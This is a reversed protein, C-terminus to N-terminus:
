SITTDRLEGDIRGSYVGATQLKRQLARRFELSWARSNQTMQRYTFENRMELARLILDAAQEPDKRQVGRGSDLMAALNHIGTSNGEAAARRYLSVATIDNHEVGKGQQHMFGLNVMGASNGLDAARRYWFAAKVPDAAGGEATNYLSALDLMSPVHGAEAARTLLRIAEVTDKSVLKGQGLIVGLWHQAEHNDGEAAARLLRLGEQEDKTAGRGEILAMALAATANLSGASAGMRYWRVAEIDDRAVGIGNAYLRGLRFMVYANGGEGLRRLTQLFDDGGEAIRWLEVEMDRGPAMAALRQRLEGVQTVPGGNLGVIIDGLGIGAQAAPGSAIAELVLVGNANPLGLSLALPLELVDMHVGLWGKEPERPQTGLKVTVKVLRGQPAPPQNSPPPVPPTVIAPPPTLASTGTGPAAADPRPPMRVINIGSDSARQLVSSLARSYLARGAPPLAGAQVPGDAFLLLASAVACTVAVALPIGGGAPLRPERLARNM